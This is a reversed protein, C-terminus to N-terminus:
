AHYRMMLASIVFAISTSRLHWVMYMIPSYEQGFRMCISNFDGRAMTYSYLTQRHEKEIIDKKVHFIMVYYFVSWIMYTSIAMGVYGFYEIIGFNEMSAQWQSPMIIGANEDVNWYRLIYM